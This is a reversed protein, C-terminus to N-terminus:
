QVLEQREAWLEHMRAVMQAVYSRMPMGLVSARQRTREFGMAELGQYALVDNSPMEKHGNLCKSLTESVTWDLLSESAKIWAPNQRLHPNSMITRKALEEGIADEVFTKWVFSVKVGIAAQENSLRFLVAFMALLAAVLLGDM